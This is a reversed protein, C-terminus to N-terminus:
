GLDCSFSGWFGMNKGNEVCWGAKSINGLNPECADSQEKEIKSTEGKQFDVEGVLFRINKRPTPAKDPKGGERGKKVFHTNDVMHMESSHPNLSGTILSCTHQRGLYSITWNLLLMLMWPSLLSHNDLLM